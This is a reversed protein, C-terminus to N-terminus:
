AGFKAEDIYQKAAEKAICVSGALTLVDGLEKMKGSTGHSTPAMDWIHLSIDNLSEDTSSLLKASGIYKVITKVYDTTVFQAYYQRHTCKGSLYDARSFENTPEVSNANKSTKPTNM